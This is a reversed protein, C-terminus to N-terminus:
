AAIQISVHLGLQHALNVLTDLRFDEIKGKVLASVRPQTINLREATETQNLGETEIRKTIAMMLASRLKMNEAKIPDDELADWVSNFRQLDSM